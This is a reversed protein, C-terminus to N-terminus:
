SAAESVNDPDNYQVGVEVKIAEPESKCFCEHLEGESTQTFM